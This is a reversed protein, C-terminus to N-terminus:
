NHINKNDNQLDIKTEPWQSTTTPTTVSDHPFIVLETPTAANTTLKTTMMSTEKTM